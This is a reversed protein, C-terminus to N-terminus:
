REFANGSGLISTDQLRNSEVVGLGVNGVLLETIFEIVTLVGVTGESGGVNEKHASEESRTGL